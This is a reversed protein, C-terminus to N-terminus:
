PEGRGARRYAAAAQRRAGSEQLRAELESMQTELEARLSSLDDLLAILLPRLNALDADPATIVVKRLADLRAALDGIESLANGAVARRALAIQAAAGELERRLEARGREGHGSM